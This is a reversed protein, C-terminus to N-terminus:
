TRKNNKIYDTLEKIALKLDEIANTLSEIHNSSLRYMFYVALGAVGYNALQTIDINTM